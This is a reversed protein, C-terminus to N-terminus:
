GQTLNWDVVVVKMSIMNETLVTALDGFEASKLKRGWGEAIVRIEKM